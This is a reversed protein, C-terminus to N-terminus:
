TRQFCPLNETHNVWRVPRYKIFMTLVNFVSTKFPQTLALFSWNKGDREGTYLRLSDFMCDDSEEIEFQQFELQVVHDPFTTHAVVVCEKNNQYEPVAYTETTDTIKLSCDIMCMNISNICSGLLMFM